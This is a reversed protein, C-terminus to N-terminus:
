EVLSCGMGLKKLVNCSKVSSKRSRFPGLYVRYQLRSQGMDTEVVMATKNGVLASYKGNLRNVFKNAAQEEGFVGLQVHYLARQTVKPKFVARKVVPKKRLAAKKVLPKKVQRRIADSKLAQSKITEGEAPAMWVPRAKTGNSIVATKQSGTELSAILKDGSIDGKTNDPTDDGGGFVNQFFSSVSNQSSPEKVKVTSPTIVVPGENLGVVANQKNLDTARKATWASNSPTLKTKNNKVSSDITGRSSAIVKDKSKVAKEAGQAQLKIRNAKAQTSDLTPIERSPPQQNVAVQKVQQAQQQQKKKSKKNFGFLDNLGGFFEFTGKPKAEVKVVRVGKSALKVTKTTSVRKGVNLNSSGALQRDKSALSKQGVAEYALAREAYLRRLEVGRLKQLWEANSLDAISQAIKGQNRYAIGRMLLVRAMVDPAQKGSTIIKGAQSVVSKYKGSILSSNVQNLADDALAFQGGVFMLATFVLLFAVFGGYSEGRFRCHQIRQIGDAGIGDAKNLQLIAFRM